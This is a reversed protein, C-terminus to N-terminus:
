HQYQRSIFRTINDKPGNSRCYNQMSLLASHTHSMTIDLKISDIKFNKM